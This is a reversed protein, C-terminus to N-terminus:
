RDLLKMLQARARSTRSMVTGQPIKLRQAMEATTLDESALLTLIEAHDGSLLAFARHFGIVEDHPAMIAPRQDMEPDYIFRNGIQRAHHAQNVFVNHMMTLLWGRLNGDKWLHAKRIAREMTDQVLDNADNPDRTLRRAYRQLAPIHELM